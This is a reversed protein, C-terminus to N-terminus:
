RKLGEWQKIFDLLVKQPRAPHGGQPNITIQPFNKLQIKLNDPIPNGIENIVVMATKSQLSRYISKLANPDLEGEHHDNLVLTKLKLEKLLPLLADHTLVFLHDQWKSALTKLSAWQQKSDCSIPGSSHCLTKEMMKQMECLRSPHLWFHEFPRGKEQESPFEFTTQNLQKRQEKIGKLWPALHSHPLILNPMSLILKIQKPSLEMHHPDINHDPTMEKLTFNLPRCKKLAVLANNCWQPHICSYATRASYISSIYLFFLTILPAIKMREHFM